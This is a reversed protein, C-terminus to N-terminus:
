FETGLDFFFFIFTIRIYCTKQDLTLTKQHVFHRIESLMANANNLNASIRDIHPKWSLHEDIKVGLYKVSNIPYLRKEDVKLKLDLVLQKKNLNLYSLKLKALMSAYKIQM